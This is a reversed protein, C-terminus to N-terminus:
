KAAAQAQKKQIHKKAMHHGVAAGVVAGAVRHHKGAVVAGTAAGAVHGQALASGAAAFAVSVCVLSTTLYRM